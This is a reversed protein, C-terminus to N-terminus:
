LAHEDAYERELAQRQYKKYVKQVAERTYGMPKLADLADTIDGSYFCEYNNLEYLIADEAKVDRMAQKKWAKIKALGENLKDLNRKPLYGGMGITVYKEGPELPHAAAGEKFQENSFAWFVGCETFLEDYRKQHEANVQTYKAM